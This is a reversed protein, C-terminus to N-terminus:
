VGDDASSRLETGPHQRIDRDRHARDHLTSGQVNDDFIDRAQQALAVHNHRVVYGEVRVKNEGPRAPSHVDSRRCQMSDRPADKSSPGLELIEALVESDLQGVSMIRPSVARGQSM